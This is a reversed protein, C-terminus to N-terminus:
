RREFVFPLGDVSLKGRQATQFLEVDLSAAQRVILDHM